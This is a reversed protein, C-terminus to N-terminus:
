SQWRRQQRTNSSGPQKKAPKKKTGGAAVPGDTVPSLSERPRKGLKLADAMVESARDSDSRTRSAPAQQKPTSTASTVLHPAGGTGTVSSGPTATYSTLNGLANLSNSRLRPAALSAYSAASSNESSGHASSQTLVAPAPPPHQVTAPTISNGTRSAQQEQGNGQKGTTGTRKSESRQKNPCNRASHGSEQCEWCTSVQGEHFLRLKMKSLPVTIASPIACKPTGWVYRRGSEVVVDLSEVLKVQQRTPGEVITILPKLVESLVEDELTYPCGIVHLRVVDDGYYPRVSVLKGTLSLGHKTLRDYSERCDLTVVCHGHLRDFNVQKIRNPDDLQTGLAELFPKFATRGYGEVPFCCCFYQGSSTDM